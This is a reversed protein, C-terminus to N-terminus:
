DRWRRHGWLYQDPAKRIEAELYGNLTSLIERVIASRAPAPFM